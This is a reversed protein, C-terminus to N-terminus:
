DRARARCRPVLTEVRDTFVWGSFDGPVRALQRADDIGTLHGGSLPGVLIVDSGVSRLRAEFRRPWGWLNAAHDLPVVVRTHRCATPVVGAWGVLEYRVLCRKITQPDFARVEPFRAVVRASPAEGGYVSLRARDAAPLRDLRAAVGEGDSARNTKFHLLLRRGPLATLVDDLSPMLGVGAGRLPFSRGGDASYGWGVDLRRLEAATHAEPAGRGDTRCDLTADHFVMPVGDASVHVDLELEDAGAALAAQMSPLTNELLRHTPPQIRTATCTQDDVGALSFTQHVGRHALLRWPGPPPPALRSSNLLAV